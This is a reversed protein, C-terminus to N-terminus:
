HKYPDIVKGKEEGWFKVRIEINEMALKTEITGLSVAFIGYNNISNETNPPLVNM